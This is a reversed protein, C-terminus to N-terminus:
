QCSKDRKNHLVNSRNSWIPVPLANADGQQNNQQHEWENSQGNNQQWFTLSGREAETKYVTFWYEKLTQVYAAFEETQEAM